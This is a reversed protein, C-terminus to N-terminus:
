SSGLIEYETTITQWKHSPTLVTQVDLMEGNQLTVASSTAVQVVEVTLGGRETALFPLPVSQIGGINPVSTRAQNLNMVFPSDADAVFNHSANYTARLGGLIVTGQGALEIRVETFDTGAVSITNGVTGLEEVLASFEGTTLVFTDASNSSSYNAIPTNQVFLAVDNMQGNEVLYSFSFSTLDDSPVLAKVVAASGASLTVEAREEANGFRDQSGWSGVRPESRGWEFRGDLNVDLGAQSPIQGGYLGVETSELYWYSANSMNGDAPPLASVRLQLGVSEADVTPNHPLTVVTWPDMPHHRIEFQANTAVADVEIDYLTSSGLFWPSTVSDFGDGYVTNSIREDIRVEFTSTDLTFWQSSTTNFAELNVNVTNIGPIANALSLGNIARSVVPNASNRSVQGSHLVGGSPNVIEWSARTASFTTSPYCSGFIVMDLTEERFYSDQTAFVDVSSLSPDSICPNAAFLPSTGSGTWNVTSFSANSWAVQTYGPSTPRLVEYVTRFTYDRPITNNLQSSFVNFSTYASSVRNTPNTQSTGSAVTTGINDVISWQARIPMGLANCKLIMTGQFSQSLNFVPYKAFSLIDAFSDDIGCGSASTNVPLDEIFVSGNLEWGRETPPEQFSDMRAGDGTISHVIPIGAPAGTFELHLRFEDIETYDLLDVPITAQNTGKMGPVVEGSSDLISWNLYAGTPIEADIFFPAYTDEALPQTM